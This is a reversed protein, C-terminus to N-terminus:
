GKVGAEKIFEVQENSKLTYDEPVPKGNVIPRAQPDINMVQALGARVDGITKGVADAMMEHSGYSVMVGANAM